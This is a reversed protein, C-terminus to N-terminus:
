WLEERADPEYITSVSCLVFHRWLICSKKTFSCFIDCSFGELKQSVKFNKFSLKRIKAVIRVSSKIFNDKWFIRLSQIVSKKKGKGCQYDKKEGGKPPCSSPFPWAAFLLTSDLKQLSWSPLPTKDEALAFRATRALVFNSNIEKCIEHIGEKLM